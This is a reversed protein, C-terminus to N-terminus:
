TTTQTQAGSYASHLQERFASSSALDGWLWESQAFAAFGNAGLFQERLRQKHPDAYLNSSPSQADAAILLYWSVLLAAAHSCSQQARLRARITPLVFNPIKDCADMAVRRTTDGLHRNRFRDLVLQCYRLADMPPRELAPVAETTLYDRTFDAILKDGLAQDVLQHGRLLGLFGIALHAANLVRLKMSEWDGVRSTFEVGVRELAPRGGVFEDELVWQLYDEALVACHDEIEFTDAIVQSQEPARPTIRDVMANPFSLQGVIRQWLRQEGAAAFFQELGSRLMAGNHVINDCCLLTLPARAAKSDFRLRCAQLLLGYLSHCSNNSLDAAIDASATDLAGDVKLYYGTETVTSSVIRVSPDALTSLAAQPDPVADLCRALSGIAAYSASDDTAITSLTYLGDQRQLQSILESSEPRLNIGVVACDASADLELLKQYYVQQHARHFAGVGVHAIGIRSAARNYAPRQIARPLQALSSNDLQLLAPKALQDLQRQPESASSTSM